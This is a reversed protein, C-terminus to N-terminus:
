RIKLQEFIGMIGSNKLYEAGDIMDMTVKQGGPLFGPISNLVNVAIRKKNQRQMDAIFAKEQATTAAAAAVKLTNAREDQIQEEDIKAQILKNRTSTEPIAMFQEPRISIDLEGLIGRLGEGERVRNQEKQEDELLEELEGVSGVIGRKEDGLIRSILGKLEGSRKIDDVTLGTAKLEKETLEQGRDLKARIMLGEAIGLDQGRFDIQAQLPALEQEYSGAIRRLTRIVEQVDERVQNTFRGRRGLGRLKRINVGGITEVLGEDIEEQTSGAFSTVWGPQQELQGTREAMAEELPLNPDTGIDRGLTPEDVGEFDDGIEPPLASTGGPFFGQAGRMKAFAIEQAINREQGPPAPALSAFGKQRSLIDQLEPAVRRGFAQFQEPTSGFYSQAKEIQKARSEQDQGEFSPFLHSLDIVGAQGGKLQRLKRIPQQALSAAVGAYDRENNNAM